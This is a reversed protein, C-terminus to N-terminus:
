EWSPVTTFQGLSDLGLRLHPHLRPLSAGITQHFIGSSHSSMDTRAQPPHEHRASIQKETLTRTLFFGFFHSWRRIRRRDFSRQSCLVRCPPARLFTPLDSRISREKGFDCVLWGWGRSSGNGWFINKHGSAILIPRPVCLKKMTRARRPTDCGMWAARAFKCPSWAARYGRDLGCSRSAAIPPQFVAAHKVGLGVLRWTCPSAVKAGSASTIHANRLNRSACKKNERQGRRDGGSSFM